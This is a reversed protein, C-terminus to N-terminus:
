EIIELVQIFDGQIDLELTVDQMFKFDYDKDSWHELASCKDILENDGGYVGNLFVYKIKGKKSAQSNKGVVVANFRGIM